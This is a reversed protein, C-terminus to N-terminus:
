SPSSRFSIMSDVACSPVIGGTILYKSRLSPCVQLKFHIMHVGCSLLRQVCSWSWSILLVRAGITSCCICHSLVFNLLVHYSRGSSHSSIKSCIGLICCNYKAPPSGNIILSCLRNKSSITNRPYLLFM